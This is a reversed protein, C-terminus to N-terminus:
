APERENEVEAIAEPYSSPDMLSGPGYAPYIAEGGGIVNSNPVPTYRHFDFAGPDRVNVQWDYSPDAYLERVLAAATPRDPAVVGYNPNGGGPGSRQFYVLTAGHKAILARVDDDFTPSEATVDLDLTVAEPNSM